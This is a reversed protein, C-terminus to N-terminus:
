LDDRTLLTDNEFKNCVSQRTWVFQLLNGNGDWVYCNAIGTIDVSIKMYVRKTQNLHLLIEHSLDHQKNHQKDHQKHLKDGTSTKVCLM